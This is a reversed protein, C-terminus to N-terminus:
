AGCRGCKKKTLSKLFESILKRRRDYVIGGKKYDDRSTGASRQLTIRVYFDLRAAYQELSEDEVPVEETPEGEDEDSLTAPGAHKAKKKAAKSKTEHIFTDVHEAQTVLGHELLTLKAIYRM